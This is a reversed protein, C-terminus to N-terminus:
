AEALIRDLANGLETRLWHSFIQEGASWTKGHAWCLNSENGTSLVSGCDDCYRLPHAERHPIFDALDVPM